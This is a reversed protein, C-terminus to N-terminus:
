YAYLSCYQGGGLCFLSVITPYNGLELPQYFHNVATTSSSSRLDSSTNRGVLAVMMDRDYCAESNGPLKSEHGRFRPHLIVDLICPSVLTQFCVCSPEFYPFKTSARALKSLSLSSKPPSSRRAILAKTLSWVQSFLPRAGGM